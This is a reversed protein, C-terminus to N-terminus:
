NSEPTQENEPAAEPAITTLCYSPVGPLQTSENEAYPGYHAVLGARSNLAPDSFPAGFSANRDQLRDINARRRADIAAYHSRLKALERQKQLVAERDALPTEAPLAALEADVSAICATLTRQLAEREEATQFKPQGATGRDSPKRAAEVAMTERAKVEDATETQDTTAACASLGAIMAAIGFLKSGNAKM